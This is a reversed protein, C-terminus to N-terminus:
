KSLEDIADGAVGRNKVGGGSVATSKRAGGGDGIAEPRRDEKLFSSTRVSNKSFERRTGSRIKGSLIKGM